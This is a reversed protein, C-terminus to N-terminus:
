LGGRLFWGMFIGGLLAVVIFLTMLQQSKDQFINELFHWNIVNSLNKSSAFELEPHSYWVGGDKFNFPLACMRHYHLVKGSGNQVFSPVFVYSRGEISFIDKKGRRQVDRLPDLLYTETKQADHVHIRVLRPIFHEVLTKNEKIKKM